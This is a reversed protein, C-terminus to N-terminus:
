HKIYKDVLLGFVSGILVGTMNATFDLWEGYRNVYPQTLEIMGGLCIYLLAMMWIRLPMAIATPIALVAYAILHHTKDSGPVDPLQALPSLSLGIIALAIAGSLWNAQAPNRRLYYIPVWLHDVMYDVWM